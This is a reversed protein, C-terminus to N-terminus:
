QLYRPAAPAAETKVKQQNGSSLQRKGGSFFYLAALIVAISLLAIAMMWRIDRPSSVPNLMERMEVSTREDEGVRVAHEASERLVKEASIAAGEKWETTGPIFEVHGGLGKRFRGVGQWDLVDGNLLRSRMDFIFDNYKVIVDRESCGEGVALWQYFRRAPQVTVEKFEWQYEPPLIQRNAYDFQGPQRDLLLMGIGPMALQRNVYLYERLQSYM